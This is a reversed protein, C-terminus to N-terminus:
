RNKRCEPCGQNRATRNYVTNKWEHKKNVSCQWWLHKNSKSTITNPNLSGNKRKHFERAILPFLRALSNTTSAKQGACFPCGAGRRTRSDPPAQWEHDPGNKCIWWVKRKSHATIQMGTLDGNKTPHMQAALYPFNNKLCNQKSARANSCLPCGSGNTRIAVSTNWEHDQFIKCQWWVKKESGWTVDNPTLHGNRKKHWEKAIEPYLGKLSNTISVKQGACFPCGRKHKTRHCITAQWEHDPGKLCKWWAKVGSAAAVDHATWNGNKTPHWQKALKPYSKALTQYKKKPSKYWTSPINSSASLVIPKPVSKVHHKKAYERRAKYCAPCGAGMATRDAIATNWEHSCKGCLWWARKGSAHMVQNVKLKGNKTPHWERAVAPFLTLLANDSCVKKSACFPCASMNIVRNNISTKYIRLCYQCQWWAKVGSGHSFDEPGWGCNKEYFWEAAVYPDADCLPVLDKKRSGCFPEQVDEIDPPTSRGM